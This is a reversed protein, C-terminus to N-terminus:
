VHEEDLMTLTWHIALPSSTMAQMLAGAVVLAAGVKVGIATRSVRTGRVIEDKTSGDNHWLARLAEGAPIDGSGVFVSTLVVRVLVAGMGALTTARTGSGRPARLASGQQAIQIPAVTM